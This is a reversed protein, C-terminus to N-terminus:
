KTSPTLELGKRRYIRVDPGPREVAAFGAVPLFFADQMDYVASPAPGRTGRVVRALVYERETLSRLEPSVSAYTWLPSETLVIWDPTRGAPDGFARSAADFHWAHFETRGFDLAAYNGGSDHLTDEPQLRPTLWQAALVRTDTRGLLLDLRVTNFISLAAVAAALLGTTLAVPLRARDAVWAGGHRVAVAALLCAIPVLPLVYRFFVTLGSGIGAFFAAAFAGIVLASRGHHRAMPVIGALAAAFMGVGLGYPLSRRLHYSWGRGLDIGHGGALHGTDFRVDALFTRSDLVAFPTGALFGAAFVGLFVLAARWDRSERSSFWVGVAMAAVIAAASYKTSTALGGLLGALAMERISRAELAEVLIALSGTLLLTMLVDTLAFHSDRVHLVAVSLFGAALLATGRDASRAALRALVLITATGALAMTARALLVYGAPSISPTVAAALRFVGALAYFTLSPWHFFHPNPDGALIGLAHGVTTEEDPRAHPYPLGFWIPFIRLAAGLLVILALAAPYTRGRSM